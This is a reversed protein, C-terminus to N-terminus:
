PPPPPPPPPPPAPTPPPPPSPPPPPTAPPRPPLRPPATPASRITTPRSPDIVARRFLNRGPSPLDCDWGSRMRKDGAAISAYEAFAPAAGVRALPKRGIDAGLSPLYPAEKSIRHTTQRGTGRGRLGGAVRRCVVPM